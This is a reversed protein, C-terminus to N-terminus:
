PMTRNVRAIRHLLSFRKEGRVKRARSGQTELLVRLDRPDKPVKLGRLDPPVPPDPLALPEQLGPPAWQVPPDPTVRNAL